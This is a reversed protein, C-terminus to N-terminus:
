PVRIMGIGRTGNSGSATDDEFTSAMRRESEM